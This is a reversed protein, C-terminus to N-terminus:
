QLLVQSVFEGFGDAVPSKYDGLYIRGSDPRLFVAGDMDSSFFEIFGYRLHEEHANRSYLDASVMAPQIGYIPDSFLEAYNLVRLFECYDEPLRVGLRQEVERIREKSVGQGTERSHQRLAEILGM